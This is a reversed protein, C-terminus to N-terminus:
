HDAYTNLARQTALEFEAQEALVQSVTVHKIAFSISNEWPARKKVIYNYPGDTDAGDLWLIADEDIPCATDATTMTRDYDTLSGFQQVESSGKNPSVCLTASQLDGCLPKYSGTANGYQDIIEEQGEYLKFFVKQQNRRLNRVKLVERWHWAFYM